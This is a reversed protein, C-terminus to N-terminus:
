GGSPGAGARARLTEWLRMDNLLIDKLGQRVTESNLAQSSMAMQADLAGIIADMIESDLDPSSAFQGETNNAAQQALTRSELLKGNVSNVYSLGDQDSQDGGFLANVREIIERLRAREKERVSGSGAETLPDLKPAEGEGLIMAARPRAKLAHHTLQVRSLDIAERERGFELHPLLRKYFISRKEIATSGYDFIQSLFTHLRLYAGM